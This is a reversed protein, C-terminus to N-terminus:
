NKGFFRDRGLCSFKSWSRAHTIPIYQNLLADKGSIPLDGYLGENDIIIVESQVIHKLADLM